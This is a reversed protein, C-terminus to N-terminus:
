EPKKYDLANEFRGDTLKYKYNSLTKGSKNIFKVRFSANGPIKKKTNFTITYLKGDHNHKIKRTYTKGGIRLKVKDGKHVNYTIVKIKKGKAKAESVDTYSDMKDKFTFKENGYKATYVVKTNLKYVKKLKIVAKGDSSSKKDRKTKFKYKDNGIKITGKTGPRSYVTIKKSGYWMGDVLTDEKLSAASVPISTIVFALALVLPICLKFIKKM